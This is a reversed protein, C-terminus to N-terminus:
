DDLEGALEANQRSPLLLGATMESVSPTCLCSANPYTYRYRGVIYFDGDNTTTQM